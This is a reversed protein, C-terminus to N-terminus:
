KGDICVQDAFEKVNGRPNEDFRSMRFYKIEEGGEGSVVMDSLIRGVVAGMKFGHGSFGGAVVVDTGFEEGLFDIVYDEDPTMSYMCLQTSVPETYDVRGNFRDKIWKKVGEMEVGSRWPRKDPNCPLGAHRGIKILGPFELSPTGYVFPEGYSAFTPFGGDFSYDNVYDGDMIRWYSVSTELPQIPLEVRSVTKVLKSVWAGATIVCKKGRFNEGSRVVVRVGGDGSESRVVNVVKMKDRLVVGNRVALTQFMSVAKTPKIVGGFDTSVALWNEPIQFKGSFEEGVQKSDLVRHPHSNKVCSSIMSQLSKDDAPGVDLQPAKFYVKYGIEKEAEELLRASEMVLSHYYHEPYTARITRSEGHSSGLHHLFDFQELLLTKLGRKSLNYATASGMIGAGIVIADFEEGSTSGM